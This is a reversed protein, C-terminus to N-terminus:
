GREMDIRPKESRPAKRESLRQPTCTISALGPPERFSPSLLGEGNGGTKGAIIRDGLGTSIYKKIGAVECPVPHTSPALNTYKGKGM